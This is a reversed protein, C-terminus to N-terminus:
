VGYIYIYIYIDEFKFKQTVGLTCIDSQNRSINVDLMCNLIVICHKYSSNGTLRLSGLLWIM